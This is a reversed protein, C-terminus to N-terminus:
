DWICAPPQVSVRPTLDLHVLFFGLHIRVSATRPPVALSDQLHGPHKSHQGSSRHCHFMPPLWCFQRLTGITTHPISQWRERCWSDSFYVQLLSASSKVFQCLSYMALTGVIIERDTERDEQWDIQRQTQRNTQREAQREAQKGTKWRIKSDVDNRVKHVAGGM